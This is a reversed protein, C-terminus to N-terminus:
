KGNVERCLFIDGTNVRYGNVFDDWLMLRKGAPKIELIEMQGTGTEVYLDGNIKGPSKDDKEAGNYSHKAVERANAITVPIIKGDARCFDAQAGPWEWTGRVLRVIQEAPAFFDIFGDSKHLKPALTVKSEDQPTAVAKGSELLGLTELVVEAGLQALIERLETSRQNEEIKIARSSIYIDGADMKDVLSFSTVGTETLGNIIAWNVPGAGRLAPLLSGHLNFADIKAIDRVAKKVLQGFEVVCIADARRAQLYKVSEPSNINPTEYLELNAQEAALAVPTSQLKGGRGAKRAPPTVVATIDYGAAVIARFSPLAFDGSGCFIVKM